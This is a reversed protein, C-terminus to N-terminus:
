FSGADKPTGGAMDELSSEFTKNGIPSDNGIPEGTSQEVLANWEKEGEMLDIVDEDDDMEIVCQHNRILEERLDEVSVTEEAIERLSIIANKDNDRDVTLSAGTGIKRTRQSALMVLEFRDTVKEVCDEITVRAM